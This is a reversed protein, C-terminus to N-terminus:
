RRRVFPSSRKEPMRSPSNAPSWTPGHASPSGHDLAAPSPDDDVPGGTRRDRTGGQGVRVAPVLRPALGQDHEPRPRATRPQHHLTPRRPPFVNFMVDRFLGRTHDDLPVKGYIQRIGSDMIRTHPLYQRRVASNVGATAILVDATATTGDAFHATVPGVEPDPTDYRILKKGSTVHDTLGEFLIQRLTLRDVSIPTEDSADELVRTENLQDDPKVIRLPPYGATARFLAYLDAPPSDRLVRDGTPDIHLRYGQNRTLLADDHEHVTVDVAHRRLGQALCLGGLGAGILMVRLRTESM